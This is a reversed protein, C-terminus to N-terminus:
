THAGDTALAHAPGDGVAMALHQRTRLNAILDAEGGAVDGLGIDIGADTRRQRKQLVRTCRDRICMERMKALTTAINSLNGSIEDLSREYVNQLQITRQDREAKASTAWFICGILGATLVICLMPWIWRRWTSQKEM